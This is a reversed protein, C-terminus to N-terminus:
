HWLDRTLIPTWVTLAGTITTATRSTISKKADREIVLGERLNNLRRAEVRVDGDAEIFSARNEILDNSGLHLSGSSYLLVGDRNTLHEGAQLTLTQTASM